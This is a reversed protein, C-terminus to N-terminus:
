SSCTALAAPRARSRRPAGRGPARRLRRRPAAARRALRHARRPPHRPEVRGPDRAEPVAQESSSAVAASATSVHRSLRHRRPRPTGGTSGTATVRPGAARAGSSRAPSARRSRACPAARAAVDREGVGGRPEVPSRRVLREIRKRSAAQEVRWPRPVRAERARARRPAAAAIASSRRCSREADSVPRRSDRRRSCAGSRAASLNAGRPGGYGARPSCFGRAPSKAEAARRAGRPSPPAIESPPLRM